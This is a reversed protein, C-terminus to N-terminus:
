GMGAKLHKLAAAELEAAWASSVFHMGPPRAPQAPPEPEPQPEGDCAAGHESSLRIIEPLTDGEVWRFWDCRLYAHTLAIGGDYCETDVSFRTLDVSTM